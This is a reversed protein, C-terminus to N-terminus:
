EYFENVLEDIKEGIQIKGYGIVALMGKKRMTRKVESYFEDFNFWHIAQAVTVLDFQDNQFNTAEAPM